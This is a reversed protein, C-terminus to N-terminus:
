MEHASLVDNVSKRILRLLNNKGLQGSRKKAAIPDLALELMFKVFNALAPASAEVGGKGRINRMFSKLASKLDSPLTLGALDEVSHGRPNDEVDVDIEEIEPTGVGEFKINGSADMKGVQNQISKWWAFESEKVPKDGNNPPVLKSGDPKMKTKGSFDVAMLKMSKGTERMKKGHHKKAEPKMSMLQKMASDPDVDVDEVEDEDEGDEYEEDEDAVYDTEEEEDSDEDEYDEDEETDDEYEDEEEDDEADVDDEYEDTEEESEEVDADDDTYDELDVQADEFDEDDMDEEEEGCENSGCTKEQLGPINSVLGLSQRQGLGLVTSGGIAENLVKWKDYSLM